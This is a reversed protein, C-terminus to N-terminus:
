VMGHTRDIGGAPLWFRAPNPWSPVGLAASARAYVWLQLAGLKCIRLLRAGVGRRVRLKAWEDDGTLIAMVHEARRRAGKVLWLEQLRALAFAERTGQFLLCDVPELFALHLRSVRPPLIQRLVNRPVPSGLVRGALQLSLATAYDLSGQRAAEVLLQWDM